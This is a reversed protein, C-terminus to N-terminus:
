TREEDIQEYVLEIVKIKIVRGSYVPEYNKCSLEEFYDAARQIKLTSFTNTKRKAKRDRDIISPVLM